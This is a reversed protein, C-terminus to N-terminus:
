CIVMIISIHMKYKSYKHGHRPGPKNIGYKTNIKENEAESKNDNIM